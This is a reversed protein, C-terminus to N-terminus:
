CNSQACAIDIFIGSQDRIKVTRYRRLLDCAMERADDYTPIPLGNINAFDGIPNFAYVLYNLNHVGKQLM